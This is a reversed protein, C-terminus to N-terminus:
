RLNQYFISNHQVFKSMLLHFNIQYVTEGLMCIHISIIILSIFWNYDKNGFVEYWPICTDAWFFFLFNFSRFIDSKCTSMMCSINSLPQVSILCHRVFMPCLVILTSRIYSPVYYNVLYLLIFLNSQVHQLGGLAWWFLFFTSLLEVQKEGQNCCVHTPGTLQWQLLNRM